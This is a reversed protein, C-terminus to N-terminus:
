FSRDINVSANINHANNISSTAVIKTKTTQKQNKIYEPVTGNYLEEYTIMLVNKRNKPINEKSDSFSLLGPGMVNIHIISDVPLFIPFTEKKGYWIYGLDLLKEQFLKIRTVSNVLIAYEPLKAKKTTM